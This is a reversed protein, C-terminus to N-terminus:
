RDLAPHDWAPSRNLGHVVHGRWRPPLQALAGRAAREDPMAAFVCAGTGTLRANGFKDIFDLAEAIEPYRRCVTALCDNRGAGSLFDRITTVPSNRTLEADQFVSATSVRVGPELLLYVGTPFDVPTLREGIGEVWAARGHVFVPVDAGLSLGLEALVELGLGLGWLRNLALLATAADSSGGGLGAQMPIRKDLAIAVGSPVEHRSALLRAARIVMDEEAPVEAPGDIREIRGRERRYFRLRDCLDIFQIASQLLHYGDARRGLIHLCLNLKAPALWPSDPGLAAGRNM